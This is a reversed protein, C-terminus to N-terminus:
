KFCDVKLSKTKKHFNYEGLHHIMSNPGFILESDEKIDEETIGLSRMLVPFKSMETLTLKYNINEYVTVKAKPGVVISDIRESWNEGKVNGLTDSGRSLNQSMWTELISEGVRCGNNGRGDQTRAAEGCR